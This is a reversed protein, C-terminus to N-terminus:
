FLEGAFILIQFFQLAALSFRYLMRAACLRVSLCAPLKLNALVIQCFYCRQIQWADPGLGFSSCSVSFLAEQLLPPGEKRSNLAKRWIM